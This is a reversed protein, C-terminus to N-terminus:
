SRYDAITQANVTCPVIMVMAFIMMLVRVKKM